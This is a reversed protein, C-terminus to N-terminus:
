HPRARSKDERAVVLWTAAILFLAGAVVMMAATNARDAPAFVWLATHALGAAVLLWGAYREIKQLRARDCRSQTLPRVTKPLFNGTVVLMLGVMVGFLRQGTADSLWGLQDGISVTLGGSIMLSAGFLSARISRASQGEGRGLTFAAFLGAAVVAVVGGWLLMKGPDLTWNIVTLVFATLLATRVPYATLTLAIM